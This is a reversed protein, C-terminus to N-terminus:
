CPRSLQMIALVIEVVILVIIAAEMTLNWTEKIEARDYQETLWALLEKRVSSNSANHGENDFNRDANVLFSQLTPVGLQEFTQRLDHDIHAKRILFRPM